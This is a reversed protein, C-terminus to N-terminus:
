GEKFYGDDTNKEYEDETGKRSKGCKSRRDVETNKMRTLLSFLITPM